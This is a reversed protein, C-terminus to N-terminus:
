NIPSQSDADLFVMRLSWRNPPPQLWTYQGCVEDYDGGSLIALFILKSRTLSTDHEIDNASYSTIEDGDGKVNPSRFNACLHRYM